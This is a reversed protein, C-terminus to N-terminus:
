GLLLALRERLAVLERCVARAVVPQERGAVAQGARLADDLREHYEAVSIPCRDGMRQRLETASLFLSLRYRYVGWLNNLPEVAPPDEICSFTGPSRCPCNYYALRRDGEEYDGRGIFLCVRPMMKRSYTAGCGGCRHLQEQPHAALATEPM